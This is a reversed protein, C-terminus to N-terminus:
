ANALGARAKALRAVLQKPDLGHVSLSVVFEHCADLNKLKTEASKLKAIREVTCDVSRSAAVAVIRERQAPDTIERLSQEVAQQLASTQRLNKVRDLWYPFAEKPPLPLDLKVAFPAAYDRYGPWYAAVEAPCTVPRGAAGLEEVWTRYRRADERSLHGVHAGKVFVAIANRDHRNGRDRRLEAAVSLRQEVGRRGCIRRLAPKHFSEGVVNVGYRGTVAFSSSIPRPVPEQSLDTQVENSSLLRKFWDMLGM